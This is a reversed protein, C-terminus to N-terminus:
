AYSYLGDPRAPRSLYYRNIAARLDEAKRDLELARAPDNYVEAMLRAGAVYGAFVECCDALYRTRSLAFPGALKARSLGDTDRLRDLITLMGDVKAPVGTEAFLSRDGGARVYRWAVDLFVAPN